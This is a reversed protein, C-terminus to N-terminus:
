IGGTESFSNTSAYRRSRPRSGSDVTRTFATSLHDLQFSILASKRADGSPRITTASAKNSLKPDSLVSPKRRLAQTLVAVINPRDIYTQRLSLYTDLPM